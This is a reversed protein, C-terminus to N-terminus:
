QMDKCAKHSSDNVKMADQRRYYDVAEATLLAISDPTFAKAHCRDINAQTASGPATAITKSYDGEGEGFSMAVTRFHDGVWGVDAKARVGGLYSKGTTLQLEARNSRNSYDQRTLGLDIKIIRDQAM